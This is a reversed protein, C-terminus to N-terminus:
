APGGPTGSTTRALAEACVFTGSGVQGVLFGEAVL